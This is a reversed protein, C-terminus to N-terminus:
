YQFTEGPYHSFQTAGHSSQSDSFLQLHLYIFLVM